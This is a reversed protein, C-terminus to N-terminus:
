IEENIEEKARVEITTGLYGCVSIYEEAMGRIVDGAPKIEEVQAVSQGASWIDLWRKSGLEPSRDVGEISKALWNAYNGTIRDTFVIDGPGADVVAQKYAPLARAETTAILRTGVIVGCAGVAMTAAMQAGTSIGGAAIVPLGVKDKLYPVLILTPVAGGHGGAGSGVAVLGDVGRDRAKLGQELSIVDAFVKGGSSHVDKLILDPDGLSTIFLKVGYDLCLALQEKWPFRGSLHINVGFPRDTGKRISDLAIRLQEATRYNPLAFTGLGGAESVAVTLEEYSVLFMPAGIIPYQIGFMETFLTKIKAM